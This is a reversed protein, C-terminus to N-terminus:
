FQDMHTEPPICPAWSLSQFRLGLRFGRPEQETVVSSESVDSSPYPFHLQFPVFLLLDCGSWLLHTMGGWGLPLGATVLVVSVWVEEPQPVRLGCAVPYSAGQMCPVRRSESDRQM